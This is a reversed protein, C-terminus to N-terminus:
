FHEEPLYEQPHRIAAKTIAISGDGRILVFVMRGYDLLLWCGAPRVQPAAVPRSILYIPILMQGAFSIGNAVFQTVM